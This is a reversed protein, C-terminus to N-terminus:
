PSHQFWFTRCHQKSICSIQFTSTAHEDPCFFLHFRCPHFLMQDHYLQLWPSFPSLTPFFGLLPHFPLFFCTTFGLPLLRDKDAKHFCTAIPFLRMAAWVCLTHSTTLRSIDFVILFCFVLNKAKLGTPVFNMFSNLWATKMTSLSPTELRMKGVSTWQLLAYIAIGRTGFTNASPTCFTICRSHTLDTPTWCFTTHPCLWNKVEALLPYCM